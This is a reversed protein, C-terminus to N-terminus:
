LRRPQLYWMIKSQRKGNIKSHMLHDDNAGKQKNAQSKILLICIEIASGKNYLETNAYTPRPM